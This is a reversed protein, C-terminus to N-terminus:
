LLSGATQDATGQPCQHGVVAQILDIMLVGPSDDALEDAASLAPMGPVFAPQASCLLHSILLGGQAGRVLITHPAPASAPQETSQSPQSM